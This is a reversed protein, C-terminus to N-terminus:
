KAYKVDSVNVFRMKIRMVITIESLMRVYAFNGFM